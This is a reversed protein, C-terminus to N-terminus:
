AELSSLLLSRLEGSLSQQLKEIERCLNAIEKDRAAITQEYYADPAPAFKRGGKSAPM